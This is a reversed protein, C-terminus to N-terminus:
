LKHTSAHPLRYGYPRSREDRKIDPFHASLTALQRQVTRLERVIGMDQIQTHLDPTTAKHGRPIRCLIEM